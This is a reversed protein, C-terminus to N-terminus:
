KSSRKRKAPQTERQPRGGKEMQAFARRLTNLEEQEFASMEGKLANNLAEAARTAEEGQKLVRNRVLLPIVFEFLPVWCAIRSPAYLMTCVDDGCCATVIARDTAWNGYIVGNSFWTHMSARVSYCGPPLEIEVHGDRTPISDYYSGLPMAPGGGIVPPIHPPIAIWKDDRHHRYRGESWNLVRGSCNSVAIVWPSNTITCPDGLNTVWVNLVATSM